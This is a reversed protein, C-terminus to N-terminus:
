PRGTDRVNVEAMMHVRIRDVISKQNTNCQYAIGISSKEVLFDRIGFLTRKVQIISAKGSITYAKDSMPDM